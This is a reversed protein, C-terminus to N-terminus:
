CVKCKIQMVRLVLGLATLVHVVRFVAPNNATLAMRNLWWILKTFDLFRVSSRRSTQPLFLFISWEGCRTYKWRLAAVKPTHPEGLVGQSSPFVGGAPWSIWSSFFGGPLTKPCFFIFAQSFYLSKKAAWQAEGALCCDPLLADEDRGFM